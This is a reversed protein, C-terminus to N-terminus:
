KDGVLKKAKEVWQVSKGAKFPNLFSIIAIADRILEDREKIKRDQKMELATAFVKAQGVRGNGDLIMKRDGQKINLGM